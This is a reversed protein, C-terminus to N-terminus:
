KAMLVKGLLGVVVLGIVGALIPVIPLKKGEKDDNAASADPTEPEAVAVDSTEPKEGPKLIKRPEVAVPAM